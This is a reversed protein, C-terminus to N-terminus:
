SISKMGRIRIIETQAQESVGWGPPTVLVGFFSESQMAVEALNSGVSMM